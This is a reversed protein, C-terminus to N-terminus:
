SLGLRLAVIMGHIRDPALSVWDSAGRERVRVVLPQLPLSPVAITAVSAIAGPVVPDAPTMSAPFPADLQLEFRRSEDSLLTFSVETVSVSRGRAVPPLMGARLSLGFRQDGSDPALFTRWSEALTAADLAVVVSSPAAAAVAAQAATALPLGGDLASYALHLKVDRVTSLDLRNRSAPLEIKWRSVAGANEFPLYRPDDLSTALDRVFLGPDDIANGTVIGQVAAFQSYFRDDSAPLAVRPYGGAITPVLRVSNELLTLVCVVNDDSQADPRDVTVSVRAIRRQYHGPYDRDFLLEPLEFECAGSALLSLLRDPLEHLLSITRTIERRRVNLELYSSELRRLDHDLSEGALLGRRLSDWSGQGVINSEVLGLEFRYCREARRSMAMALRYARFYTASLQGVMWEYLSQGTFKAAMFEREAELDGTADAYLELQREAIQVRFDAAVRRAEAEDRRFAAERAAKENDGKREEAEAFKEIIEVGTELAGYAHENAKVGKEAIDSATEGGTEASAQPSGGFGAAGLLFNPVARVGASIMLAIVSAIKAAVVVSKITVATIELPNMYESGEAEDRQFEALAIAHEIATRLARAEELQWRLIQETDARVRQRQALLLATVAEADKRELAALLSRGLERVSATYDVARRHIERFRYSPLPAGLELLLSGVDVGAARARVLLAPDIPADFLPLALAEGGLGRCHRLKFLRDDVTDWLALLKDNPPIKFYFTQPPPLPPGGGPGGGTGGPILNEVAVLANAFADLEPELETWSVAARAPPTVFEPRPGLLEAAMVYLLTAENLAERSETAFLADGWAILNDLYSMVVRKMYAVPRLDALLHPNFPDNRWRRVQGVAAPDGRNVAGLLMDIRQALIDSSTLDALPRTIWYRQPVPETSTRTPDFIFHLWARAEEFRQNRSLRDAVFLPLHLFLEWNYGAYSGDYDFDVVEADRRARVIGSTPAYTANFSFPTTAPLVTDPARQLAPRYFEPFGGASLVHRFLRAFPHYFPLIEFQLRTPLSGPVSPAVPQWVSGYQWHRKPEFFWARRPDKLVFPSEPSFPLDNALGVVRYALPVTGLLQGTDIVAEFALPLTTSATNTQRALLGGGEVRLEPEPPLRPEAESEPLGLLDRARPGYLTRARELLRNSGTDAAVFLDRQQLDAFRGEFVIRGLHVAGDMTAPLIEANGLLAAFLAALIEEASTPGVRFVDVLLTIGNPQLKLTYLGEVDTDSIAEDPRFYPKDFLSQPALKPPAWVGERWESAHVRLEVYRDPPTSEREPGAVAAPIRQRPENAVTARLWFLHLRGGFFAPIASQSGIDLPIKEWPSWQRNEFRRHYFQAPDGPTRAVVHLTGSGPESCMGMVRLLAVDALRDLYNLAVVELQDRTAERQQSEQDLAVFIESRGPREPEFLWNEPWLFVKRAAEWVRYRDMWHWQDWDADTAPDARVDRELNMIVRQVFLQISAYAQVVRSTTQCPSMETDLLFRGFLDATDVGWIPAGAGDRQGLLWWRLADRRRSRLPDMIEPAVALWAEASYRSKLAQWAANADGLSPTATSWAALEAGSAGTQATTALITRLREYTAVASWSGSALSLGLASAVAAVDSERWGTIAALERHVDADSTLTGDLAASVLARLSDIPPPPVATSNARLDFARDLTVFRTTQLWADITQEPQTATVPLERLAVGGIDLSHDLLWAIERLGLRLARTVLSLKDLLRMAAFLGPVGTPTLSLLYAGTVTDRAILAPDTLATLLSRGDGPLIVSRLVHTTVDDPLGFAGAIAAIVRTQTLWVVLPTLVAAARAAIEAERPGPPTAATTLPLVLAAQATAVDMFSAFHDAIFGNRAAANGGFSGDVISVALSLTEGTGFGPLAALQRQLIAITPDASSRVDDDVQQLAARVSALTESMQAETRARATPALGLVYRLAPLDLGARTLERARRVFALTTTPSVFVSALSGGAIYGAAELGLGLARVMTISRYMTSLSALTLEGTTAASLAAAEQPTISLAARVAELHDILAPPPTTALLTALELALDPVLLPNEFVRTYLSPQVVGGGLLHARTGIDQWLALRQEISLAVAAGIREVTFLQRLTSADLIENGVADAMLLEDLEWMQGGVRRWLRLFRHIRDLNDADLGVLTQVSTDCSDDIGAITIATGAGRPWRCTVLQLLEDHSLQAHQLFTAVVALDTVPAATNWATALPVFNANTVLSLEFAPMSFSAAAVATAAPLPAVGLPLFAERLQWLAVASRALVTTLEDFARDYPLYHPFAAAAVVTYAADNVYEPAARLEAASRTTQRWIPTPPPSVADELLENVLDIYPLPTNTNPCDLRLHLVDPRRAAFAALATAYPSGSLARNRLWLLLDALYASPSLISTCPDVACADQSGFLNALSPNRRIASEIPEGFPAGPGTAAPYIGTLAANHQMFLAVSAAYRLSAVGFVREAELRTLGQEALTVVIQQKGRVHIAAASDMRSALLALGVDPDRSIRLVRQVREVERLTPGRLAAPVNGLAREGNKEMWIALNERTLDLTGSNRFFSAVSERVPEAVVRAREVRAALATTPYRRGVREFIERAYLTVADEGASPLINPPVGDEGADRVMQQWDEIELRALESTPSEREALRAQALRIIPLHNKVLSGIDLARRLSAVVSPDFGSDAGALARWFRTPSGIHARWAEVFSAHQDKPLGGLDLLDRMPTKGTAFPAALLGETRHAHLREVIDDVKAGLSAPVITEAMARKLTERVREDAVGAILRGVHTVLSDIMRFRDSADLLPRPVSAPVGLRLFAYAAASPVCLARGLREALVLQMVMETSISLEAAIFSLDAHEENEVLDVLSLKGLLPEIRGLLRAHEDQASPPFRLVLDSLRDPALPGSRAIAPPRGDHADPHCAIIEVRGSSCENDPWKLEIAFRGRNDTCTEGLLQEERLRERVARVFAKAVACGDADVLRGEAKLSRDDTDM